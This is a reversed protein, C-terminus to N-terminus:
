ETFSRDPELGFVECVSEIVESIRLRARHASPLSEMAELQGEVWTSAEIRGWWDRHGLDFSAGLDLYEVRVNDPLGFLLIEDSADPDRIVLVVPHEHEAQLAAESPPDSDNPWTM